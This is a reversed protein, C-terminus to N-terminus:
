GKTLTEDLNLLVSAVTTWAALDAIELSEDRPSEGVSLLELAAQTNAHFKRSQRELIGVLIKRERESPMRATLLRFGFEIKTDPSDGGERMMREALKRASEVYTPDNLLILAQLPTNTRARRVVCTERDPADFTTLTPPPSTRKWFTYMTRRYLDAGHSQVYSQATWNKGDERSMLEEWLGAPQYPSVSLGGIRPDLLGSVSLAQDRIFEAQLRFRPARALLRNEADRALLAKGVVSSQRYTASMVIRKLLARVNWRRSEAPLSPETSEMLETALWDLLEPHSPWEGQSGFDESTKVLGVGFLMQWFRNAIVRSTLPHNPAVLWQALGLRNLPADSPFPAINEPVGPTVKDGPQDYQGRRLMFTERPQPMEEMVMATPIATELASREDRASTLKEGLSRAAPSVNARYFDRITVRDADSRADAPFSLAQVVNEPISSAARPDRAETLSARFRGFQHQGFPSAFELTVTATEGETIVLPSGFEFIAAHPKGVEPYIGWGSKPDSDLIAEIPYGTQSYDATVTKSKALRPTEGARAVEVKLGTMVANGNPSRGPGKAALSDDPLAEVRAATYAGPPLVASVSYTESAPNEGSALISDDALRTLTAGGKSKPNESLRRWVVEVLSLATKEWEAQAADVEPMPAQLERELSAISEALDALRRTQEPRPAKILPAANGKSGDLGNEPVNHFFAFFRYFDRQTIPDFKHDHCQSCGITLGLWVSGTTNVRDVIYATHYELPIAGGEFNIMHNRNFGSAVRQELTADPLLDGALQETTFRDFPMNSAFADIVWERWRSMDRGSDIHYGHTDAYRAADLWDVAMREAHASSALLQDVLREYAGPERDALFADVEPLTPPLGTLDLTLRRILTEPSAVPSPALGEAELRALIFNDIPDRPWAADRTDPPTPRVPPLFAWHREYPAGQDIWKKLIEKQSEKLAHGSAPPPMLVDPDLSSIRRALESESSKGPVIALAGSDTPKLAQDREDLRLGAQREKADPGHCRFCHDSLIPRIDRNYRVTQNSPSEQGSAVPGSFTAACITLLTALVSPRRGYGKSDAWM